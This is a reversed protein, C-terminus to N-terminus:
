APWHVTTPVTYTWRVADGHRRSKAMGRGDSSVLEPPLTESSTVRTHAFCAPNECIAPQPGLADDQPLAFRAHLRHHLRLPAPKAVFARSTRAPGITRLAASGRFHQIKGCENLSGGEGALMRPGPELRWPCSPRHGRFPKRVTSITPGMCVLLALCRARARNGTQYQHDHDLLRTASMGTDRDLSPSGMKGRPSATQVAM